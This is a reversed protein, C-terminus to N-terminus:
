FYGYVIKVITIFIITLVRECRTIREHTTSSFIASIIKCTGLFWKKWIEQINSANVDSNM